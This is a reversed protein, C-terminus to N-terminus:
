GIRADIAGAVLAPDDCMPFHNGDPVEVQVIDDFREAWQPQFGLPDNKAGFVTVMPRDALSRVAREVAAYDHRRASRLYRHFSRRGRRDIGRRFTRRTSREWNRGVGFKTSSLRTLWGTAVHLECMPASGMVALMSRFGRGSPEWGFTNIAALGRVRDPWRAAAQLAATGGLDHFALVLDRLDLSRVVADTADAAADLDVKSTGCSLGTGPADFTVVRWRDELAAVVDLWVFSWMGTHVLLVVPKDGGTDTVAVEHDGARVFRIPYPWEEQSLWPPRVGSSPDTPETSASRTTTEM